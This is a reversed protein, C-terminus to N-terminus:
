LTMVVYFKTRTHSDTNRNSAYSVEVRRELLSIRSKMQANSHQVNATHLDDGVYKGVVCKVIVLPM